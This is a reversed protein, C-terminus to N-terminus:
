QPAKCEACVNLINSMKINNNHLVELFKFSDKNHYFYSRASKKISGIKFNNVDNEKIQKRISIYVHKDISNDIIIFEDDTPDSTKILVQCDNVLGLYQFNRQIIIQDINNNDLWINLSM